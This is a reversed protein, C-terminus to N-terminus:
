RCLLATHYVFMAPAVKPAVMLATERIAHQLMGFWPRDFRMVELSCGRTIQKEVTLGCTQALRRITTPTYFNIHGVPDPVYDRSLRVTHECPVEIVIHRAVRKAEQLLVRPHELHEVVHSLVALDFHAASFPLSAGDFRDFSATGQLDRAQANAIASASIDVGQYKGAFGLQAFRAIISGDGCGIDIVSSFRLGQCLEIVNQVKDIAGLRRWEALEPSGYYNDYQARVEEGVTNM